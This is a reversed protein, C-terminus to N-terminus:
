SPTPSCGPSMSWVAPELVDARVPRADCLKGNEHRWSDSGICRYYVIKRKTTTTSTRYYAYSCSVCAVLGKLLAPTTSNRAAFRKNDELRRAAREFTTEDILAPVPIEIWQDPVCDVTVPNTARAEGALRNSRTAAPRAQHDRATKGFGAWGAYASNRLMGWVTSRDWRRKGKVGEGPAGLKHNNPTRVTM